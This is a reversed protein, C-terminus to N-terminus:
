SFVKPAIFLKEHAKFKEIEKEQKKKLEEKEQKLKKQENSLFYEGSELALDVKRPELFL